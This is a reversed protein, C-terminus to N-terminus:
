ATDAPVFVHYKSPKCHLGTELNACHNMESCWNASAISFENDGQKESPQEVAEAPQAEQAPEEAAQVEVSPEEALQAEVAWRKPSPWLTNKM